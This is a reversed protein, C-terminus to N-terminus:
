EVIIHIDKFGRYRENHDLGYGVVFGKGIEFLAYDCPPRGSLRKSLLVLTKVSKPGMSKIRELVAQMTTGTDYIDDVILVHKDVVEISDLGMLSLDGKQTGLLGYSKCQIADLTCMSGPLARMLDSVFFIAGKLIMVIHVREGEYDKRLREAMENIKKKIEEETILLRFAIM